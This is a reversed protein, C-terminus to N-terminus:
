LLGMEKAWRALDGKGRSYLFEEFTPIRGRHGKQRRSSKHRREYEACVRNVEDRAEQASTVDNVRGFRDIVVVRDEGFMGGSFVTAILEGNKEIHISNDATKKAKYTM